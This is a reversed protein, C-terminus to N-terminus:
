RERDQMEWADNFIRDLDENSNLVPFWPEKPRLFAKWAIIM